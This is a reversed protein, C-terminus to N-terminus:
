PTYSAICKYIYISTFVLWNIKLVLPKSISPVRISQLVLEILYTAPTLTHIIAIICMIWWGCPLSSGSQFCCNRCCLRGVRCTCHQLLDIWINQNKSKRPHCGHRNCQSLILYHWLCTIVGAIYTFKIRNSQLPIIVVHLFCGLCETAGSKLLICAKTPQYM